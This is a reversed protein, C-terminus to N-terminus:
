RQEQAQEGRHSKSTRVPQYDPAPDSPEALYSHGTCYRAGFRTYVEAPFGCGKADCKPYTKM